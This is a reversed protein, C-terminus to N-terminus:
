DNGSAECGASGGSMPCTVLVQHSQSKLELVWDNGRSTFLTYGFQHQSQSAVVSAGRLRTGAVSRDIPVAMETGGDGAVIQSPRDRDVSVFEFLHIHGSLIMTLGKPSAQEWASQLSAVLPVPPGGHPDTKFGWFPYHVVLWANEAHLSALQAAYVRAQEENLGDEDVASSDLMALEFTGLKVIYPPPYEACTGSWPHPDLYYFWGRWSRNCSEHNGRSFVWPAAALLKAGPTFFDVNWAEWNDGTPTGGCMAESGAPCPSERYLYDGVHIILDPKDNTASSALERFPWVAPDNCDQARKGKIRCGTDGIAIVRVPNPHPLKLPQGNVSVAKAGPPITFECLPRLGAPLPQRLAM